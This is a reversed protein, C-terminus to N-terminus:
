SPGPMPMPETRTIACLYPPRLSKVEPSPTKLASIMIGACVTFLLFMEQFDTHDLTYYLTVSFLVLPPARAQLPSLNPQTARVRIVQNPYHWRLSYVESKQNRAKIKDYLQPYVRNQHIRLKVKQLSLATLTCPAAAPCGPPRAPARTLIFIM